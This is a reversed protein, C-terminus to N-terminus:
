EMWGALFYGYPRPSGNIFNFVFINKTGKEYSLVPERGNQWIVGDPWKVKGSGVGQELILTVEVSRGVTAPINEFLVTTLEKNLTFMNVSKKAADLTVSWDGSLTRSPISTPEVLEYGSEDQKVELVKGKQGVLTKPMDKLDSSKLDSVDGGGGGGTPADIFELGSEDQKVAVVKGGSGTLTAPTNVLDEFKRKNLLTKLQSVVWAYATTNVTAGGLTLSLSEGSATLFESLQTNDVKDQSQEAIERARRIADRLGEITNFTIMPVDTLTPGKYEKRLTIASNGSPDPATGSLGEVLVRGGDLFIATGSSVFSCDVNGTVAIINTNTTLTVANSNLFGASM